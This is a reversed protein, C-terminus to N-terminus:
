DDHDRSVSSINEAVDATTQLDLRLLTPNIYKTDQSDSNCAVSGSEADSSSDNRRRKEEDTSDNEKQPSIKSSSGAHRLTEVNAKRRRLESDSTTNLDRQSPKKEDASKIQVTPKEEPNNVEYQRIDQPRPDPRTGIADMADLTEPEQLYHHQRETTGRDRQETNNHNGGQYNDNSNPNAKISQTFGPRQPEVARPEDRGPGAIHRIRNIQGVSSGTGYCFALLAVAMFILVPVQLIIPIESLLARLFEGIGKGLHKLPETIFDTFTLAIAKTIPVKLAPNINLTKFYEVCPDNRFTFSSRLLDVLGETFSSKESCSDYKGLKALEAQQEAYEVKFLYLWNWFFSIVISLICIRKIQTFWGVRTWLETAVVSVVCLFCLLIMFLTYENIGIYDEIKWAWDEKNHHKFDVLTRSLADDLAGANWDADNLFKQIEALMHRTLFVQADYRIEPQSEDPLGLPEVGSLIKNLYRRFIPNSSTQSFKEKKRYNEVQLRLHHVNNECAKLEAPCATQETTQCIEKIPTDETVIQPRNRMKGSAADYNLMDTPDIWEDDHFSWCRPILIISVLVVLKMTCVKIPKMM